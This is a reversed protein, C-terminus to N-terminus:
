PRVGNKGDLIREVIKVVAQHREPSQATAAAETHTTAVDTLLDRADRESIIKLDTLALLLSECIGLAATGDVDHLRGHETM